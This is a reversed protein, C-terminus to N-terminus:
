DDTSHGLIEPIATTAADDTIFQVEDGVGRRAKFVANRPLNTIQALGTVDSTATLIVGKLYSYGDVEPGTKMRVHLM